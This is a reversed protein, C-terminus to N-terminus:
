RLQQKLTSFCSISTSDGLLARAWKLGCCQSQKMHTFILELEEIRVKMTEATSQMCDRRSINRAKCTNKGPYHDEKVQVAIIVPHHVLFFFALAGWLEM